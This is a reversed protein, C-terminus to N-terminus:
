ANQETLYKQLLEYGKQTVLGYMFHILMETQVELTEFESTPFIDPQYALQVQEVRMLALVKVNIEPRYYGEEIGRELNSIIHNLVHERKFATYAKWAEPFYRQLDILLSPHYSFVSRRFHRMMHIIEAVPNEATQMIEIMEEGKCCLDKETCHAVLTAKDKFHKYITKKSVGAERAIEDMTVSRLGRWWFLQTATSIISEATQDLTFPKHNFQRAFSRFSQSSGFNRYKCERVYYLLFPETKFPKIKSQL